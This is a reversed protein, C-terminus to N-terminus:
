PTRWQPNHAIHLEGRRRFSPLLRTIWQLARIFPPTAHTPTRLPPKMGATKLPILHPIARHMQSPLVTSPCQTIQGRNHTMLLWVSQQLAHIPQLNTRITVGLIPSTRLSSLARKYINTVACTRYQSLSVESSEEVDADRLPKSRTLNSLFETIM